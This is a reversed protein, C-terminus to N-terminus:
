SNSEVFACLTSVSKFIERNEEAEVELGFLMKIGVVIELVDISDLGIGDGNDDFGFLLDDDGIEDVDMQLDVRDIIMEKLELKISETTKLM